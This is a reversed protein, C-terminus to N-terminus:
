AHTPNFHPPNWLTKELLTFAFDWSMCAPRRLRGRTSPASCCASWQFNWCFFLRHTNLGLLLLGCNFSLHRFASDMQIICMNLLSFASGRGTMYIWYHGEGGFYWLQYDVVLSFPVSLLVWLNHLSSCAFPCARHTTAWQRQLQQHHFTCLDVQKRAEPHLLGSLPAAAWAKCAFTLGSCCTNKLRSLLKRASTGSRLLNWIFWSTLFM